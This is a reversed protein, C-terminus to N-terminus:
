PHPMAMALATSTARACRKDGKRTVSMILPDPRLRGGGGIHGTGARSPVETGSAATGHSKIGVPKGILEVEMEREEIIGFPDSRVRHKM